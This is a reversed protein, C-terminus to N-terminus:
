GRVFAILVSGLRIGFKRMDARNILVGDGQLYMRDDMTVALTRGKVPLALRYRWHFVSGTIRGRATGIVDDAWGEYGGDGTARLTWIRQERGGDGYRFDERLCLDQGIMRGEIGVTFRRRARGTRDEFVGWARTTGLFYEELRFPADVKM